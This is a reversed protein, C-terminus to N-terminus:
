ETLGTISDFADEACEGEFTTCQSPCEDYDSCFSCLVQNNVLLQDRLTRSYKDNVPLM